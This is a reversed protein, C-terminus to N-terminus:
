KIYKATLEEFPLDNINDIDNIMNYVKNKWMIVEKNDYCSKNQLLENILKIVNGQNGQKKNIKEMYPPLSISDLEPYHKSFWLKILVPFQINSFSTNSICELFPMEDLIFPHYTVPYIINFNNYGYKLAIIASAGGLIKGDISFNNLSYLNPYFENDIQRWPAILVGSDLTTCYFYRSLGNDYKPRVYSIPTYHLKGKEDFGFHVGTVIYKGDPSKKEKPFVPNFYLPPNTPSCHTSNVIFEFENMLEETFTGYINLSVKIWKIYCPSNDYEVLSGCNQCFNLTSDTYSDCKPCHIDMKVDRNDQYLM